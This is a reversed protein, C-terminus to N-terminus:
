KQFILISKYSSNKVKIFKNKEIKQKFQGQTGTSLTLAHTLVFYMFLDTFVVFALQHSAMNSLTHFTLLCLTTKKKLSLVFSLRTQEVQNFIFRVWCVQIFVGPRLTKLVSLSPKISM